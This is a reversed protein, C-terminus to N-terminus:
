ELTNLERNVLQLIKVNQQRVLKLEYKADMTHGYLETIFDEFLPDRILGHYDSTFDSEPLKPYTLGYYDMLRVYPGVVSGSGLQLDMHRKENESADAVVDQWSFLLTILSDSRILHVDASSIGSRLAGNQPDFTWLWSTNKLWAQLTDSSTVAAQDSKLRVIKLAAQVVRDNYYMVSDLQQLNANFEVSLATLLAKRKVQEKRGENWDSVWLAVLIGIVVLMIEGVAYLLYKSFKNHDFLRHRIQRFFRLM